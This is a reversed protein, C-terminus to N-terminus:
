SAPPSFSLMLHEIDAKLISVAMKIEGKELYDVLALHLDMSASHQKQM